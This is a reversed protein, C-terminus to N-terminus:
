YAVLLGGVNPIERKTSQQTMRQPFGRPMVQRAFVRPLNNADEAVVEGAGTVRVHRVVLVVPPNALFLNAPPNPNNLTGM